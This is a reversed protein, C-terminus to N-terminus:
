LLLIMCNRDLLNQSTLFLISLVFWRRCEHWGCLCLACGRKVFSVAFLKLVIVMTNSMTSVSIGSSRDHYYLWLM